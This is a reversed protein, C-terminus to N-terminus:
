NYRNITFNISFFIGCYGYSNFLLTCLYKIFNWDNLESRLLKECFNLGHVEGKIHFYKDDLPNYLKPKSKKNNIREHIIKLNEFNSM